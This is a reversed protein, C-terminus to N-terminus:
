RSYVDGRPHKDANFDVSANVDGCSVGKTAAEAIHITCLAVDYANKRRLLILGRREDWFLKRSEHIVHSFQLLHSSLGNM